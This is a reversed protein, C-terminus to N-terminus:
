YFCSCELETLKTKAFFLPSTGDIRCSVRSPVDTCVNGIDSVCGVPENATIGLSNNVIKMVNWLVYIRMLM